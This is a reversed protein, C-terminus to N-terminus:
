VPESQLNWPALEGIRNIPHAAIRDLLVRLYAQPDWGNMEATGVLTYIIAARRGGDISGAFLYNKRGLALPRMRREAANNHLCARGDRLVTTLASWQALAYRIAKALDSKGSIRRLTVELWERLEAMLPASRAQRTALRAEPPQGHIEAEIGFLPQMREIAECALPSGNALLEDHFYRRAHTWCAAEVVRGGEYLANFGAYADAQLIGRFERLRRQPHEGKRDPTFEYFVAPPDRGGFPRDDRLYAWVRATQTKGRGPALM